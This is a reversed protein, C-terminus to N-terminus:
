FKNTSRRKVFFLFVVLDMNNKVTKIFNISIQDGFWSVFLYPMYAPKAGFPDMEGAGAPSHVLSHEIILTGGDKLQNLWTTCALKPNWSQDLSNTYIFDHMGIWDPNEDHFDWQVSRSYNLATESIDTALVSMDHNEALYNQEFGNRTGHCIGKLKVGPFEERLRTAVLDLTKSDAWIKNIKRKNHYTQVKKYHDYDDYKYLFFDEELLEAKKKDIILLDQSELYKTINFEIITNLSKISSTTLFCESILYDKLDLKIFLDKM